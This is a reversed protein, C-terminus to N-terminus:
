GSPNSNQDWAKQIDLTRELQTQCQQQIWLGTLWMGLHWDETDSQNNDTNTLAEVANLFFHHTHTLDDLGDKLTELQEDITKSPRLPSGAKDNREAM